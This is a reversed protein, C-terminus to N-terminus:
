PFFKNYPLIQKHIKITSGLKKFFCQLYIVIYFLLQKMEYLYSLEFFIKFIRMSKVKLLDLIFIGNFQVKYNQTCKGQSIKLFLTQNIIFWSPKSINFKLALFTLKSHHSSM